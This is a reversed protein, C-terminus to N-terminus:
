NKMESSIFLSFGWVAAPVNKVELRAGKLSNKKERNTFEM